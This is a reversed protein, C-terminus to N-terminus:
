CRLTPLRWIVAQRKNPALYNDPGISCYESYSGLSCIETFNNNFNLSPRLTNFLAIWIFWKKVTHWTCFIYIYIYVYLSNECGIRADCSNHEHSWSEQPKNKNQVAWNWLLRWPKNCQWEAVLNVRQPRSFHGVNGLRCIWIYKRWHCHKFESEFKM